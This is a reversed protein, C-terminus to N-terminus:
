KAVEACAEDILDADWELVRRIFKRFQVQTKVTYVERLICDIEDQFPTEDQILDAAVRLLYAQAKHAPWKPATM